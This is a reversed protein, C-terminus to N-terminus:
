KKLRSKLEERRAKYAKDAIKGARHQDDLAIIADMISETDDLEDNADEEEDEKRDRWYMWTGAIILALGLAGIGIILNQNQLIDPEVSTSKPLGNLTFTLADNANLPASTYMTFNGGQFTRLGNDTLSDSKATVGEPVLMMAQQVPLVVTQSIEISEAKPLTAFAILGYPTESPPMAFGNELPIFPASDPAAEYGINQANAPMSIIPINQKTADLTVRITKESHNVFSYVALMQVNSQNAYDFYLQLADLTLLSYDEVIEHVTVNPISVSTMGAEVIAFGSTYPIGDVSFEARFIRKEPIEINEFTYVGNQDVGTEMAFIEVPGLSPDAGHEFARLTVKLDAPLPQGSQNDIIGSVNGVGAVADAEDEAPAPTGDASATAEAAAAAETVPAPTPTAQPASFTLTRIYAAAAAAESDSLDNGFAPINENGNKIISIIENESLAAMTEQDSFKSECGACKEEFIAKGQEIQAPTTHLTLAYSIVDWRQQESLSSFPPMFRELNGRTVMIYWDSPKAKMATAPLGLPAVTVPLQKGQEGDGFGTEGHCAACKETYIAKGKDIDPAAAPYSPGLTPAATPPVYGPPPTVDAALTFNCASVLVALGTLIIYRSFKM